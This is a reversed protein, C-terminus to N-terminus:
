SGGDRVGNKVEDAAHEVALTAEERGDSFSGAIACAADKGQACGLSLASDVDARAQTDSRKEDLVERQRLAQCAARSGLVCGHHLLAHGVVTRKAGAQICAQVDDHLECAERTARDQDSEPPPEAPASSRALAPPPDPSPTCAAWLASCLVLVFSGLATRVV